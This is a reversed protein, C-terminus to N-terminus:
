EGIEIEDLEASESEVEARLGSIAARLPEYIEIEKGLIELTVVLSYNARSDPDRSWGRHGRVAICLNEPLANSKVVAWDKQVTGVDRRVDPLEGWDGRSELTWGFAEEGGNQAIGQESRLARAMFAELSEGRRNSRWDLWTSLYGRLGRRTRRPQASYSLTVEVRIDFDDGPRRLLEPIPVQYMHCEGAGIARTGETILTTRYDNNTTARDLDPIGYGILKLLEARQLATLGDSSDPWRASQVILARYLLAPESPLDAQIQAAIKAVKPAAFSTGVEDRDFAPGGNLTARLLEPYCERATTPNDVEPPNNGNYLCDGGFEAVEPKISDWIGLGTRSFGSVEGRSSAFSRWSGDQFMQYAVSGVTIAQLSQAPNAVRCCPSLLYGPFGTGGTLLEVMGPFPAPSSVRLNGASQIFLIDNENCLQDIEAAWASMHLTRCPTLANICHNFIRTQRPGRHYFAIIRRILAPPFAAADMNGTEDLVRANQIWVQPQAEGETPISEGYLVAGGVRTGHGSPPLEDAVANPAKSTIFCFSSTKDVAPELWLHDEQIGSDIICVAPADDPPVRIRIVAAQDHADRRTQQPTEIEDPETVEFIYPYNLVLDKLALATVNIRLTFSDPLISADEDFTHYDGLIEGGYFGIFDTVTEAREERLRDWSVYAGVRTRSWDAAKKAWDEDTDRRGRKPRAPIQWSGACTVGIDVIYFDTEVMLPWERLLAESLVRRLREAQTTDSDLEHIQAVSASGRVEAVFEALREQFYSLDRDESAAIVFGDEHESVIEFHFFHRLSDVDLSPDIKLLLPVGAKTAPLGRQEREQSRLRWAAVLEQAHARLTNSHTIRNLQNTKSTDDSFPPRTLKAPGKVRLVLALHGFRQDGPM